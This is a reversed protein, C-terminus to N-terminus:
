MPQSPTKLDSSATTAATSPPPLPLHFCTSHGVQLRCPYSPSRATFCALEGQKLSINLVSTFVRRERGKHPVGAIEPPLPPANKLAKGSFCRHHDAAIKCFPLFSSTLLAMQFQVGEWTSLKRKKLRTRKVFDGARPKWAISAQSSHAICLSM